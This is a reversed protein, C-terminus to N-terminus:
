NFIFIIINEKTKPGIGVNNDKELQQMRCWFQRGLLQWRQPVLSCLVSALGLWTSTGSLPAAAKAAVFRELPREQRRERGNLLFSILATRELSLTGQEESNM